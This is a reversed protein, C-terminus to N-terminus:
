VCHQLTEAWVTAPNCGVICLTVDWLVGHQLTVAWLVGHQM